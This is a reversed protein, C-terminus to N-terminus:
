GLLHRNSNSGSSSAKTTTTTTTIAKAVANHIRLKALCFLSSFFALLPAFALENENHATHIKFKSYIIQIGRQNAQSSWTHERSKHADLPPSAFPSHSRFQSRFLNYRHADMKITLYVTSEVVCM